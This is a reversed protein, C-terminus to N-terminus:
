PAPQVDGAHVTAQALEIQVKLLDLARALKGPLASLALEEAVRACESLHALDFSGAAGALRHLVLQRAAPTAAAELELWRAPLGAVFAQQLALYRGQLAPPLGDAISSAVDM